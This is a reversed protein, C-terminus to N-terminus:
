LLVLRRNQELSKVRPSRTSSPKAQKRVKQLSQFYDKCKKRKMRSFYTFKKGSVTSVLNPIDTFGDPITSFTEVIPEETTPPLEYDPFGAPRLYM